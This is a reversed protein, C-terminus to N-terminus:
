GELGDDAGKIKGYAQELVQEIRSTNDEVRKLGDRFRELIDRVDQDMGDEIANICIFQAFLSIFNVNANLQGVISIMLEANDGSNKREGENM